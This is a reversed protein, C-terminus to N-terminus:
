PPLSGGGTCNALTSRARAVAARRVLHLAALALGIAAVPGHAAGAAIATFFGLVSLGIWGAAAPAPQPGLVALLVASVGFWGAFNAWPIGYYAGGGQWAWYGLPGAALPDIVLDIATMWAAGAAIRALPHRLGPFLATFALAHGALLIWAPAMALPVGALAPGLADTYHYASFPFGTTVGLWESAWGLAGALWLRLATRPPFCLSMLLGGAFLYAPAAWAAGPPPAGQTLYTFVGGGWLLAYVMWLATRAIRVATVRRPSAAPDAM